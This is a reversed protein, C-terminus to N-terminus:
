RRFRRCRTLCYTCGCGCCTFVILAYFYSLAIYVINDYKNCITTTSQQEPDQDANFIYVSDIVVAAVFILGLFLAIFFLFLGERRM